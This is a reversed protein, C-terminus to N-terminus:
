AYTGTMGMVITNDPSINRRHPENTAISGEYKIDGSVSSCFINEKTIGTNPYTPKSTSATITNKTQIKTTEIFPNFTRLPNLVAFANPRTIKTTIKDERMVVGRPM